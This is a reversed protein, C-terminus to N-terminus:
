PRSNILGVYGRNKLSELLTDSPVDETQEIDQDYLTLVTKLRGLERTRIM